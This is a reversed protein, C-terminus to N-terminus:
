ATPNRLAPKLSMWHYKEASFAGASFAWVDPGDVKTVVVRKGNATEFVRGAPFMKSIHGLRQKELQESYARYADRQDALHKAIEVDVSWQAPTSV